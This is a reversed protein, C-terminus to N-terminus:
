EKSIHDVSSRNSFESILDIWCVGEFSKKRM